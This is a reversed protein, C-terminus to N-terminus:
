SHRPTSWRGPFIWLCFMGVLLVGAVGVTLLAAGVARTDVGSEDPLVDNSAMVVIPPGSARSQTPEAVLAVLEGDPSEVVRAAVWAPPPAPLIGPYALALREPASRSALVVLAAGIIATLAFAGIAAAIPVSRARGGGRSLRRRIVGREAAWAAAFARSDFAGSGLVEEASVGEGEAEELDAALEAAMEDAVPDPVGLRKWESRCEDVFESM